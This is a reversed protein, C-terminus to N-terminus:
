LVEIEFWEGWEHYTLKVKRISDKNYLEYTYTQYYSKGSDEEAYDLFNQLLNLNLTNFNNHLKLTRHETNKPYTYARDATGPKIKRGQSNQFSIPIIENKNFLTIWYYRKDKKEINLGISKSYNIDINSSDSGTTIIAKKNKIVSLGISSTDAVLFIKKINEEQDKLDPYIFFYCDYYSKNYYILGEANSKKTNCCLLIIIFVLYYLLKLVRM